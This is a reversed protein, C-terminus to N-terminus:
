SSASFSLVAIAELLSVSSSCFPIPLLLSIWLSPAALHAPSVPLFSPVPQLLAPFFLALFCFVTISFLSPCPAPSLSTSFSFVLLPSSSLCPPILFYQCSALCLFFSVSFFLSPSFVSLSSNLFLCLSGFLSLSIPFSWFWCSHAVAGMEQASGLFHM